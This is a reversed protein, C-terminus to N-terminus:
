NWEGQIQFGAWYYPASWRKQRRMQTQAARLAAAPPTGDRLMAKYFFGMLEATAADSVRWLSAVVRSAGAYMFGRTLGVLGEGDIEKGLGTECASLVVMEVPLDLNYIDELDLFGNQPRGNADVMSFVLGSLEPNRSDLLGHTAFHVIRYHTLEASTAANRSANFDVAEMAQGQSTSAVITDAELRTFWLRHLHLEQFDRSRTSGDLSIDAASRLLRSAPLSRWFGSQQQALVPADSRKEGSRRVRSDDKDFVPDALVAVTKPPKPRMRQERRLAALVSASPLNVIEHNEILTHLEPTMRGVPPPEAPNPLVAFPIYQLAGDSVILLRKHGLADAIPGLVMRSLSSVARAYRLEAKALRVRRAAESEDKIIRNPETLLEYVSRAATEIESKKPLPYTILSDQGLLFVYSREEGLSYELLLTDSDLLQRQIEKADLPEPQALDAYRPSNARIEEEVQSHEALTREIEKRITTAQEETHQSSLLRIRAALKGTLAFQLERERKLLGSDVGNRIEVHAATMMELLMRARSRELAQLALDPRNRALLFDVYEKYYSTHTARFGSRIEESGGLRATQSELADLAEKYYAEAADLQGSRRMVFALGALTAAHDASGYALKERITLAQRYYNEAATWNSRKSLLDGLSNLTEALYLSDPAVRTEIALAQLEFNEAEAPKGRDTALYSLDNYDGAVDLSESGGLAVDIALAQRTLSEGQAADGQEQALLGLDHVSQSVEWSRPALKNRIALSQTIRSKSKQPDGQLDAVTGLENLSIAVDLGGPKRKQAISLARNLYNEAKALDGRQWTITGLSNLSSAVDLSEPAISSQIALARLFYDEADALGSGRPYRIVAGVSDLSRALALSNPALKERIALARRCYDGARVLDARKWFIAGLDDLSAALSLSDEGLLKSEAVAEEYKKQAQDFDSRQICSSAWARLIQVRIMPGAGASERLARSYGEDALKWQRADTALIAVRFSFWAAILPSHAKESEVAASNWIGAARAVQGARALQAGSRYASAVGEPFQARVMVGWNEHLMVWTRPERGRLGYLTVPGRPSQELEIAPIEFPSQIQRGGDGSWGLVVDGKALGAQESASNKDIKEVVVGALGPASSPAAVGPIWGTGVILLLAFVLRRKHRM